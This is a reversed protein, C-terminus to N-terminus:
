ARVAQIFESIKKAGSSITQNNILIQKHSMHPSIEDWRTANIRLDDTCVQPASHTIRLARESDMRRRDAIVVPDATIYIFGNFIELMANDWMDEITLHEGNRITVILHTDVIVIDCEASAITAKMGNILAQKKKHASMRELGEYTTTGLAQKLITSGRFVKVPVTNSEVLAQLLTTKGVGNVGFVCLAIKKM